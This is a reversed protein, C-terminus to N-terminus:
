PHGAAPNRGASPVTQLHLTSAGTEPTM